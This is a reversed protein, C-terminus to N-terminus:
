YIDPYMISTLGKQNKEPTLSKNKLYPHKRTRRKSESLRYSEGNAEPIHIRHTLRDPL